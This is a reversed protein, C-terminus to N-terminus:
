MVPSNKAAQETRRASLDVVKAAAVREAIGDAPKSDGSEDARVIIGIAGDRKGKMLRQPGFSSRRLSDVLLVLHGRRRKPVFQSPCFLAQQNPKEAAATQSVLIRLGDLPEIPTAQDVVFSRERGLSHHHECTGQVLVSDLGL